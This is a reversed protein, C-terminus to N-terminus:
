AELEKTELGCRRLFELATEPSRHPRDYKDTQYYVVRSLGSNALAKACGLCPISTVYITGGLRLSRDSYLLANIEAHIAPCDSYDPARNLTQRRPCFSTCSGEEKDFGAPPGNYGTAQVRGDAGVIVAGVGKECRSRQAVLEAVEMWLDDEPIRV